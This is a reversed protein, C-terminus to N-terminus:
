RPVVREGGSQTHEDDVVVGRPQLDELLHELFAGVFTVTAEPAKGERRQGTGLPM